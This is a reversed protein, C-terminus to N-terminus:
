VRLANRLATLAYGPKAWPPDCTCPLRSIAAKKACAVCSVPRLNARDEARRLNKSKNKSGDHQDFKNKNKQFIKRQQTQTWPCIEAVDALDVLAVGVAVRGLPLPRAGRPLLVVPAARQLDRPVVVVPGRPPGDAEVPEPVGAPHRPVGHHRELRREPEPHVAHVPHHRLPEAGGGPGDVAGELAAPVVGGLHVRADAVVPLVAALEADVGPGVEGALSPPMPPRRPGEPRTSPTADCGRARFRAITVICYFAPALQAQKNSKSRFLSAATIHM